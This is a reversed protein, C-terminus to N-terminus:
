EEIPGLEAAEFRVRRNAAAQVGRLFAESSPGAAPPPLYGAQPVQQPFPDWPDYEAQVFTPRAPAAKSVAATDPVLPHEALTRAEILGEVEVESAIYEPDLRNVRLRTERAQLLTQRCNVRRTAEIVEAAHGLAARPRGDLDHALRVEDALLGTDGERAARGASPRSDLVPGFRHQRLLASDARAEALGRRTVAVASALYALLLECHANDLGHFGRRIEQLQSEARVVADAVRIRDVRQLVQEETLPGEAPVLQGGTWAESPLGEGSSSM